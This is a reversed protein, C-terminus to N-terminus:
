RPEDLLQVEVTKTEATGVTVSVARREYPGTFESFFWAGTDVNRWAFVKYDGAAIADVNFRGGFDARTVRYLDRRSRRPEDPILVVTAYPMSSGNASLVRGQLTGTDAGLVVNLVGGSAPDFPQGGSLVDVSGLHISKVYTGRM